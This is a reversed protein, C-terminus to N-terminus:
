LRWEHKPDPVFTLAVAIYRGELAKVLWGGFVKLRYTQGTGTIHEWEYTIKTSM